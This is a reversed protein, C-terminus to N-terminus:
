WFIWSGSDTEESKVEFIGSGGYRELLITKTSSNIIPDTTSEEQNDFPLYDVINFPIYDGFDLEPLPSSSKHPLANSIEEASLQSFGTSKISPDQAIEGTKEIIYSATTEFSGRVLWHVISLLVSYARLGVQERLRVLGVNAVRRTTGFATRYGIGSWLFVLETFLLLVAIYFHKVAAEGTDTNLAKQVFQQKTGAIDLVDHSAQLLNWIQALLPLHGALRVAKDLYKTEIRIDYVAALNETINRLLGVIPEGFDELDAVEDLTPLQALVSEATKINRKSWTWVGAYRERPEEPIEQYFTVVTGIIKKQAQGDVLAENAQGRTSRGAGALSGIAIGVGGLFARRSTM